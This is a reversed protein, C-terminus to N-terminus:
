DRDPRDDDDLLVQSPDFTCDPRNLSVERAIDMQEHNAHFRWVATATDDAHYGHRKLAMAIADRVAQAAEAHAFPGQGVTRAPARDPKGSFALVTYDGSDRNQTIYIEVQSTDRVLVLPMNRM